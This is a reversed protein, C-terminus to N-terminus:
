NNEFLYTYAKLLEQESKEWTFNEIFRKQGIEGMKARLGPDDLLHIIKDAFDINNNPEAYLAAERAIYQLEPMDFQVIPKKFSMYEYIKNPSCIVNYQNVTDANVCIDCSSLHNVYDDGSVWGTFDVYNDLSMKAALEKVSKLEPGDGMLKFIVDRRGKKNVIYDLIHLLNDVDDQKGMVGLYGVVHRKKNNDRKLTGTQVIRVSDKLPANRVIFIRDPDMNGRNIAIDRCTNNVALSLSASKFSLRELVVLMKYVINKRGGKALWIEPNVDHHDFVFKKRFIFKFIVGIIFILDPPNCAHIVDFGHSFFVKLTLMFEWFLSFPYEILYGLKGRAELPLPHRYISIDNIVEYKLTANKGKPCIVAVKYGAKTLSNAEQWVRKDHPVPLNEVIILIRKRDKGM